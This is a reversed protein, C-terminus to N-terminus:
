IEVQRPRSQFVREVIGQPQFFPSEGEIALVVDHLTVENMKRALIFGGGTGQTSTILKAIVLKRSIKKLYTPSVLMKEALADNTVPTTRKPDALIAM